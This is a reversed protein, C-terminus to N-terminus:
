WPRSDGSSSTSAHSFSPQGEPGPTRKVDVGSTPAKERAQHSEGRQRFRLVEAARSARLPHRAERGPPTDSGAIPVPMSRRRGTVAAPAGPVM